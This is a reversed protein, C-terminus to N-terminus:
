KIFTSSYQFPVKQKRQVKGKIKHFKPETINSSILRGVALFFIANRKQCQQAILIVYIGYIFGKAFFLYGHSILNRFYAKISMLYLSRLSGIKKCIPKHLFYMVVSFINRQIKYIFKFFFNHRHILLLLKVILQLYMYQTNIRRIVPKARIQRFETSTRSIFYEISMIPLQNM